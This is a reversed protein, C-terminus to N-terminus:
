TFFFSLQGWIAVHGLSPFKIDVAKYHQHSERKYIVSLHLSALTKGVSVKTLLLLSVFGALKSGLRGQGTLIYSIVM